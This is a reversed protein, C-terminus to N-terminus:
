YVLKDNDNLVVGKELPNSGEEGGNWILSYNNTQAASTNTM